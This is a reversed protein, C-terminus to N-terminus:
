ILTSYLQKMNQNSINIKQLRHYYFHYYFSSNYSREVWVNQITSPTSVNKNGVFLDIDYFSPFNLGNDILSYRYHPSVTMNGDLDSIAMLIINDTDIFAHPDIRGTFLFYLSNDLKEIRPFNGYVYFSEDISFLFKPTGVLALAPSGTAKQLYVDFTGAVSQKIYTIYIDDGSVVMDGRMPYVTTGVDISLVSGSVTGDVGAVFLVLDHNPLATRCSICYFTTDTKMIIQPFQFQGSINIEVPTTAGTLDANVRGIYLKLDSQLYMCLYVYGNRTSHMSLGDYATTYIQTNNIWVSGSGSGKLYACFLGLYSDSFDVFASLSCVDNSEALFNFSEVTPSLSKLSDLAEFITDNIISMPPSSVVISAIPANESKCVIDFKNMSQVLVFFETLTYESFDAIYNPMPIEWEVYGEGSATITRTEGINTGATITLTAGVFFNVDRDTLDNDYLITKTYSGTAIGARVGEKKPFIKCAIDATRAVEEYSNGGDYSISIIAEKYFHDMPPVFTIAIAKRWKGDPEREGADELVLDTVPDPAYLPNRAAMANSEQKGSCYDHYIGPHERKAIIEMERHEQRERIQLIRFLLGDGAYYATAAYTEVCAVYTGPCAANGCVAQQTCGSGWMLRSSNIEIVDGPNCHVSNLGAIFQCVGNGLRIGDLHMQALRGAQSFRNSPLLDIERSITELDESQAIPDDVVAQIIEFNGKRIQYTSGSVPQTQWNDEVTAVKTSGNYDIIDKIQGVGTGTLIEIVMGNYEDDDASATAALTITKAGGGTATGAHYEYPAETFKAKIQNARRDTGEPSYKLDSHNDNNFVQVVPDDGKQPTLYFKGEKHILFSNCAGLMVLLHDMGSKRSDIIYNCEFRPGGDDAMIEAYYTAAAKFSDLDLWSRPIGAGYNVKPMGIGDPRDAALFDYICWAPNNTYAFRDIDEPDPWGSPIYVKLGEVISSVELSTTRVYNNPSVEIYIYATDKHETGTRDGLYVQNTFKQILCDREEVEEELNAGTVEIIFFGFSSHSATCLLIVGSNPGEQITIKAGVWYNSSLQNSSFSSPNFRLYNKKTGTITRIIDIKLDTLLKNNIRIESANYIEGEGLGVWILMHSLTAQEQRFVNGWVKNKGYVIPIPIGTAITNRDVALEYAQSQPTLAKPPDLLSGLSSGIAAGYLAGVFISWTTAEAAGVAIAGGMLAGFGAGIAVGAPM